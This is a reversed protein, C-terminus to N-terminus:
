LSKHVSGVFPFWWTVPRLALAESASVNYAAQARGIQAYTRFAREAQLGMAQMGYQRVEGVFLLKERVHGPTSEDSLVEAVPRRARLIQWQGYGARALYHLCGPGSISLLACAGGLPVKARRLAKGLATSVANVGM